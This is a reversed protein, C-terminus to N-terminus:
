PGYHECSVSRVPPLGTALASWSEGGDITHFLDGASTGFYVGGPTCADTALGERYLTLKEV